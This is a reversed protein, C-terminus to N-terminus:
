APGTAFSDSYVRPYGRYPSICWYQIELSHIHVTYARRLSATAYIVTMDLPESHGRAQPTQDPIRQPVCQCGYGIHLNINVVHRKKSKLFV